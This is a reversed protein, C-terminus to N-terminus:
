KCGLFKGTSNIQNKIATNVDALAAKNNEKFKESVM